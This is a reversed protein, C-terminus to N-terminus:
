RQSPHLTVATGYAIVETADQFQTADYRMAIVAHAGLEEAQKMMRAFAAHRASECVEAWQEINGGAVSALAGIVGQGISPARVVVGRVIGLYREVKAEEVGNGTTVIISGTLEPTAKPSSGTADGSEGTPSWNPVGTYQRLHAAYCLEIRTRDLSAGEVNVGTLAAGRLDAYALNAGRLDANTLDANRHDGHSLDAGRLDAGVLTERSLNRAM